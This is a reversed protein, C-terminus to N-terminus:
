KCTFGDEEYSKKFDDISYDEDDKEKKITVSYIVKTGDLKLSANYENSEDLSAKESDYAKKAKEKDGFDVTEKMNVKTVNKGSYNATIESKIKTGNSEEEYTCKVSKSCGTLALAFIAVFVISLYKKM